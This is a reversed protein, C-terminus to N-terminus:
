CWWSNTPQRYARLPSTPPSSPNREGEQLLPTEPSGTPQREEAASARQLSVSTPETSQERRERGHRHRCRKPSPVRRVKAPVTGCLQSVPLYRCRSAIGLIQEVFSRAAAGRRPLASHRAVAAHWPQTCSFTPLARLGQRPGAGSSAATVPARTAKWTESRPQRLSPTPRRAANPAASTAPGHRARLRIGPLQSHIRDAETRRSAPCPLRQLHAGAEGRRRLEGSSPTAGAERRPPVPHITAGSAEL